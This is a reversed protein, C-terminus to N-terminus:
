GAVEFAGVVSVRVAPGNGYRRLNRAFDNREVDVVVLEHLLALRQDVDIRSLVFVTPVLGFTRQRGGLGLIGPLLEGRLNGFLVEGSQEFLCLRLKFAGLGAEGFRLGVIVSRDAKPLRSRRLLVDILRRGREPLCFRLDLQGLRLHLLIRRDRLLNALGLRLHLLEFALDLLCLRLEVLGFQVQGPGRDRRRLVSPNGPPVHLLAVVNYRALLDEGDDRRLDPDRGVELFSLQGVHPRPLRDFYPDVSIRREVHAAMDVADLAAGARFEGGEWRFVRGSIEDLDHLANRYFDNDVAADGRVNWHGKPNRDHRRHRDSSRRQCWPAWRRRSRSVADYGM